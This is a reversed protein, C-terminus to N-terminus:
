QDELQNAQQETHHKTRGNPWVGKAVTIRRKIEKTCDNNRTTHLILELMIRIVSICYFGGNCEFSMSIAERFSHNHKSSNRGRSSRHKPSGEIINVLLM